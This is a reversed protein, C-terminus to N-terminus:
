GVGRSPHLVRWRASELRLTGPGLSDGRELVELAEDYRGWQAYFDGIYYHLTPNEPFLDLADQLADYGEEFRGLAAYARALGTYPYIGRHRRSRLIEWHEVAEEMHELDFYRNALLFRPPGVDPQLELRQRLAEISRGYTTEKRGHYYAEVAYREIPPLRDVVAIAQEAYHEAKQAQGLNGHTLALSGYVMGFDPDEELAKEYLALAPKFEGRRLLKNGELYYRYAEASSTTLEALSVDMRGEGAEADPEFRRRIQGALDDILPFISSTGVGEAKAALVIEGSTPDQAKIQIRLDDGSEAFSGTIVTDARAKEALEQVVELPLVGDDSPGIDELIRAVQETSSVRLGVSQSLDTVLLDPLGSRLWDFSPDKTLNDFPLVAISHKGDDPETPGNSRQLAFYLAGLVVVVLGAAVSWRAWANSKRTDAVKETPAIFRYGKKPVTEVYRPKEADDNLATRIQRICSNIGLDFDVHTDDDWLTKQIEERRIVKRPRGVLLGLLQAPQPHLKIPRGDRLLEGSDEDFTFPGFRVM